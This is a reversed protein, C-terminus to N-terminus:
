SGGGRRGVVVLVVLPFHFGVWTLESSSSRRSNLPYDIM